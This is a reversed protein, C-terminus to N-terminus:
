SKRRALTREQAKLMWEEVCGERLGLPCVKDEAGTVGEVWARHPSEGLM